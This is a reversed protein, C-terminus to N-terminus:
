EHAGEMEATAHSLLADVVKQGASEPREDWREALAFQAAYALLANQSFPDVGRLEEIRRWRARDLARERELPDNLTFADAADREISLDIDDVPRLHEEPAVGWKAARIRALANKLQTEMRHLTQAYPAHARQPRSLLIHELDQLLTHPAHEACRRLFDARTIPPPAGPTLMPLSAILYYYRM